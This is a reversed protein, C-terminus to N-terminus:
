FKSHKQSLAQHKSKLLNFAKEITEWPVDPYEANVLLVEEPTLNLADLNM